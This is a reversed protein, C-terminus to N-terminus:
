GRSVTVCGVAQGGRGPGAGTSHSQGGERGRLDHARPRNSGLSPDPSMVRTTEVMMTRPRRRTSRSSPRSSTPGRMPPCAVFRRAFSRPRHAWSPQWPLRRRHPLVRPCGTAALWQRLLGAFAAVRPLYSDFAKPGLAQPMCVSAWMDGRVRTHEGVLCQRAAHRAVCFHRLASGDQQVACLAIDKRCLHKSSVVRLRSLIRASDAKQLGSLASGRM